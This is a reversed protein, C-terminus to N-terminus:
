NREQPALQPAVQISPLPEGSLKKVWADFDYPDVNSVVGGRLSSLVQALQLAVYVDSGVNSLVENRLKDIDARAKAVFFDGEANKQRLYLDGESRTTSVEGAGKKQLNQIAVAGEVEVQNVEKQAEAFEGAIRNFAMEVEQLNKKFIAQDIEERYTYRRLLVGQVDIGIPALVKKMGTEAFHVQHERKEPEYFDATSLASLSRKLENEAVQSLYKRWQIPTAGVSNILEAPGGHGDTAGSFFRVFLSVDVDLTTGDVTPIDIARFIVRSPTILNSVDQAQEVPIAKAASERDFDILQLTQPVQYITSYGPITWHYGPFLSSSQLGQGPGFAIKRVGVFGVPVVHGFTFGIVTLAVSVILVILLIGKAASGLQSQVPSFDEKM